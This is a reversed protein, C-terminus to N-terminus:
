SLRGHQATNVIYVPHKHLFASVNTALSEVNYFLAYFGFFATCKMGIFRLINKKNLCTLHQSNCASLTKEHEVRSVFWLFWLDIKISFFEVPLSMFYLIFHATYNLFLSHCLIHVYFFSPCFFRFKVRM